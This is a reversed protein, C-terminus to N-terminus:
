EVLDNRVAYRILDANTSLKMKVLIRARYTSITKVSVQLEGAVQTVTKGSAILRLVLYERNSLKEHPPRDGPNGLEFALREAMAASVYRGGRAVKRVATVLEDAATDKTVYGAAGGRLARVAFQEEPYMTFILVPLEPWQRKVDSLLELGREAGLNIDLILVDWRAGRLKRIVQDATEAEGVAIEGTQSLVHRVGRRLIPHDDAILVRLM